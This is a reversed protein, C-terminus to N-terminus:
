LPTFNLHSLESLKPSMNIGLHIIKASTFLYYTAAPNRSDESIPLITPKIGNITYDSHQSFNNILNILMRCPTKHIKFTFYSIM